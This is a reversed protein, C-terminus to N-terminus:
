REQWVLMARFEMMEGQRAQQPSHSRYHLRELSKQVKEIENAGGNVLRLLLSVQAPFDANRELALETINTEPPMARAVAVSIPQMVRTGEVWKAIGEARFKETNIQDKEALLKTKAAIAEDKRGNALVVDATAKNLDTWDKILFFVSGALVIYFIVPVMRMSSPLRRSMDTRPTKFDHCLFQSM